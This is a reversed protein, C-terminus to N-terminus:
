GSIVALDDRHIVEDSYKYGLVGAIETTKKGMIKRIEDSGYSSLGRAVEEGDESVCTVSDGVGFEGRVGRIGSPLLSKGSDRVARVAGEDLVIEGCSKLTFAIWHKRGRLSRKSPLILTGVPNDGFIDTLTTGNCGDAIITPVGFAAATKAAEIKTKMGGITTRGQTGSAKNEIESDIEEITTILKADSNLKPDKDYLGAIDTLILFLDAEILNVVLAGLNDNDGFMIEQYAVTDNENVIPLIDMGLLTLVTKRAHLFRNRESLGDHTLLIQAVNLGYVSCAQEYNWMLASQGSAAIAQKLSIDEPISKIGLKEMGCAVAGSSVIVIELNKSKLASIQSALNEFVGASVAGKGDTLVSSGIKIVVRKVGSIVAQREKQDMENRGSM